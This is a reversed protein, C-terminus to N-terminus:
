INLFRKVNNKDTKIMQNFTFISRTDILLIDIISQYENKISLWNVNMKLRITDNESFYLLIIFLAFSSNKFFIRKVESM